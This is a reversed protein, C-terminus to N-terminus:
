GTSFPSTSRSSIRCSLGRARCKGSPCGMRGARRIASLRGGFLALAGDTAGPGSRWGARWRPHQCFRRAAAATIAAPVFMVAGGAPLLTAAGIQHHWTFLMNAALDHRRVVISASAGPAFDGIRDAAERWGVLGVAAGRMIV